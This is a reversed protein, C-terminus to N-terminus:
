KLNRSIIKENPEDANKALICTMNGWLHGQRVMREMFRATTWTGCLSSRDLGQCRIQVYVKGVPSTDIIRDLLEAFAAHYAADFEMPRLDAIEDEEQWPYAFPCAPRDESQRLFVEGGIIEEDTTIRYLVGGGDCILGRDNRLRDFVPIATLCGDSSCLTEGGNAGVAFLNVDFGYGFKTSM